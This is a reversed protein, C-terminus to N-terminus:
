WGWWLMAYMFNEYSFGNTYYIYRHRWSRNPNGGSRKYQHLKKNKNKSSKQDKLSKQYRKLKVWSRGAVDFTCWLTIVATVFVVGNSIVM